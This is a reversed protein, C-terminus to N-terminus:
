TIIEYRQTLTKSMKMKNEHFQFHACEVLTEGYICTYNWLSLLQNKWATDYEAM